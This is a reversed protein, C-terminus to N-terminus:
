KHKQTNPALLTEDVDNIFFKLLDGKQLLGRRHGMDRRIDFLLDELVLLNENPSLKKNISNTRFKIWKKIVKNSGWLTLGRSIKILDDIMESEPYSNTKSSVDRLKYVVEVFNTYPEERKSYLYRKTTQRYETVKAIVMTIITVAASLLAVIIVADDKEAITILWELGKTIYFVITKLIFFAGFGAAVLLVLGLLVQFIWKLKKNRM